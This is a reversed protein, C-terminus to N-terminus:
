IYYQSEQIAESSNTPQSSMQQSQKKLPILITDNLTLVAEQKDNSLIKLIPTADHVQTLLNILNKRSNKFDSRQTISTPNLRIKVNVKLYELIM